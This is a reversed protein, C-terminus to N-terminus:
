ARQQDAIGVDQSMKLTKKNKNVTGQDVRVKQIGRNTDVLEYENM